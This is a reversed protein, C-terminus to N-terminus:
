CPPIRGRGVLASAFDQYVLRWAEETERSYGAGLVSQITQLLAEGMPAFMAETVGLRAHTEGLSHYRQALVEPKHLNDVLVALTSMFKMGQGALDDRFLDRLHPAREFLTDYFEASAPELDRRLEDFSQRILHLQEDTLPM